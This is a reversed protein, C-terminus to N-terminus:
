LKGLSPAHPYHRRIGHWDVGGTNSRTHPPHTYTILSGQDPLNRSAISIMGDGLYDGRRFQIKRGFEALLKSNRADEGETKDKSITPSIIPKFKSIPNSDVATDGEAGDPSLCPTPSLSSHLVTSPISSTFSSLHPVFKHPAMALEFRLDNLNLFANPWKNLREGMSTPLGARYALTGLNLRKSIELGSEHLWKRFLQPSDIAKKMYLLTKREEELEAPMLTANDIYQM